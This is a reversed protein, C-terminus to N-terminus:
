SLADRTSDDLWDPSHIHVMEVGSFYKGPMCKPHLDEEYEEYTGGQTMRM